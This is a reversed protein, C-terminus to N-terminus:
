LKREAVIRFLRQSRDENWTYLAIRDLRTHVAQLNLGRAWALGRRRDMESARRSPRAVTVHARAPRAERAVKAADALVDRLGGISRCTEEQGAVVVFSLASYRHPSGFPVIEGLSIEIPRLPARLLSADLESLAREAAADGCQGLFAVTVHLDEPHFRRFGPPPDPVSAFFAGDVPFGFFWNALGSM